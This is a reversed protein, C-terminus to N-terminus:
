LYVNGLPYIDSFKGPTPLHVNGEPQVSTSHLSSCRRHRCVSCWAAVSKLPNPPAGMDFLTEAPLSPIKRALFSRPFQFPPPPFQRSPSIGRDSRPSFLSSDLGELCNGGRGLGMIHTGRPLKVRMRIGNPHPILHAVIYLM